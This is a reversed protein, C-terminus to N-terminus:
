QKIDFELITIRIKKDDIQKYTNEIPKAGQKKYFEIAPNDTFCNVIIKKYNKKLNIISFELLEKGYGKRHYKDMLYLSYIEGYNKYKENHSAGFSVFGFIESKEEIVYFSKEKKQIKKWKEIIENRNSKREELIEMPIFTRYTSMWSNINIEVIKTIDEISAKRICSM